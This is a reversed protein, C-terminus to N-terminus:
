KTGPRRLALFGKAVGLSAAQGRMDGLGISPLLAKARRCRGHTKHYNPHAADRGM